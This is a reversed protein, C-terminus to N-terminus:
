GGTVPIVYGIMHSGLTSALLIYVSALEPALGARRDLTQDEFKAAKEAPMTAPILPPSIPGHAIAGRAAFM